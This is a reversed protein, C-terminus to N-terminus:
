YVKKKLTFCIFIKLIGFIVIEIDLFYKNVGGVRKEWGLVDCSQNRSPAQYFWCSRSRTKDFFNFSLHTLSDHLSVQLLISGQAQFTEKKREENKRRRRIPTTHVVICHPCIPYYTQKNSCRCPVPDLALITVFCSLPPFLRLTYYRGTPRSLLHRTRSHLVSAATTTEPTLSRLRWVTSGFDGGSHRERGVITGIWGGSWCYFSGCVGGKVGVLWRVSVITQEKGIGVEVEAVRSGRGSLKICACSNRPHSVNQQRKKLIELHLSNWLKGGKWVLKM